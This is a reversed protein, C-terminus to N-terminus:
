RLGVLARLFSLYIEKVRRLSSISVWEDASHWNGGIPGFVLTPKDLYTGFYNFDGVSAGYTIEVERGGVERYTEKFRRVFRNNEKVVYPLMEPTPRKYKEVDLEARVEVREALRYLEGKVKEWDEGVVIHRDIIAVAEDPVSLGDASGSLHLTCYSGVGLKPHKKMRIRRLNSVLKALEEVANIGLYPRAAHAKRGKARVEIVFRGRAGLMLKENTPEGVLVLDAKKLKGSKILEWAGRSFGEEDSVATFILNPREKRPFESLELFASLLAALGGKMDASGLGYFKDGELEGWPNRTWGQSLHVTDMHGNLVVTPGKGDFYAVVDDGFGEVPITETKIGGEELLSAVFKSIEHEGGFPSKISVLRKLLEFEDM